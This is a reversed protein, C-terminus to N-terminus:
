SRTALTGRVQRGRSTSENSTQMNKKQGFLILPNSLRVTSPTQLNVMPMTSIRKKKLKVLGYHAQIEISTRREASKLSQFKLQFNWSVSKQLPWRGPFTLFWQRM